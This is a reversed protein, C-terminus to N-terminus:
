GECRHSLGDAHYAGCNPCRVLDEAGKQAKRARHQQSLADRRAATERAVGVRRVMGMLWFVGVVLAIAVLLKGLM